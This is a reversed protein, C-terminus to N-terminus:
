KIKINNIKDISKEVSIFGFSVENISAYKNDNSDEIVDLPAKSSQIIRKGVDDKSINLNGTVFFDVDKCMPSETIKECEKQLHKFDPRDDIDWKGNHTTLQYSVNVGNDVIDYMFSSLNIETKIKRIAKGIISGVAEEQMFGTFTDLKNLNLDYHPSLNDRLLFKTNEKSMEEIAMIAKNVKNLEEKEADSSDHQDLSLATEILVNLLRKEAQHWALDETVIISNNTVWDLIDQLHIQKVTKTIHRQKILNNIKLCCYIYKLEINKSDVDLGRNERLIKIQAYILEKINELTYVGHIVNSRLLNKKTTNEFKTSDYLFNGKHLILFNYISNDSYRYMLHRWAEAYKEYRHTTYAKVQFIETYDTVISFDEEEEIKLVYTDNISDGAYLLKNIRELAKCIAVEGQFIYGSWIPSADIDQKLTYEDSM